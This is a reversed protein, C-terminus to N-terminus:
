RGNSREVLLELKEAAAGSDVAEAARAVGESLDTARDAVLLAAAANLLAHDRRPGPEGALIRRVAEASAAPSDVYLERLEAQRLDCDEPVVRFTRIAGGALETVRTPGTVTLDCLGDEGHVVWAREAGLERLAEALVETWEDRPVGVVQRRVGAPNALPGLLNFATRIGLAARVPAAHRMAPHLAPAYLFGIGVEDLCRELTPVDADIKTPVDADIKAGLAELVEASGSVRTHTRNGHKAVTAGAAAAIVAATTSVNFTSIGDGGTGCTDIAQSDCRVPTAHERMAQAAGVLEEVSEGKAALAALFTAMQPADVEGSMIRGFAHRAQDRSLDRGAVIHELPEKM